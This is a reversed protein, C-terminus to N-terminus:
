HGRRGAVRQQMQVITAGPSAAEPAAPAAPEAKARTTPARPVTLGLSELAKVFTPVTVNDLKGDIVWGMQDLTDVRKALQRAAAVAAALKPEMQAASISVELAESATLQDFEAM